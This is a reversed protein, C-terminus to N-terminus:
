RSHKREVTAEIDALLQAETRGGYAVFLPHRSSAKPSVVGNALKYLSLSLFSPAYIAGRAAKRQEAGPEYASPRLFLVYREGDL